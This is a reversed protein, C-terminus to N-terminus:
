NSYKSIWHCAVAALVKPRFFTRPHLCYPAFPYQSPKYPNSRWFTWATSKDNIILHKCWVITQTLLYDSNKGQKPDRFCLLTGHWSHLVVSGRHSPQSYINDCDFRPPVALTLLLLLPAYDELCHIPSASIRTRAHHNQQLLGEAACTSM